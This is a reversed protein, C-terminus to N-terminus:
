VQGNTRLHYASTYLNKIGLVRCTSHFFKANSQPGSDSLLTRPVSYKFVWADCFAVAITYATNTRLAIVQTLMTLRGAIVLLFLKGAKTKPLPGFIDIALSELPRTAPFLKLRNLHKRLKFRNMACTGCGRVTAAVDTGLHPWYYDRCLAYYM